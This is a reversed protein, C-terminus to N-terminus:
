SVEAAEGDDTAEIYVVYQESVCLEVRYTKTKM